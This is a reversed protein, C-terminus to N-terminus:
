ARCILLRPMGQGDFGVMFYGIRAQAYRPRGRHDVFRNQYLGGKKCTVTAPTMDLRHISVEMGPILPVITPLLMGFLAGTSFISAIKMVRIVREM